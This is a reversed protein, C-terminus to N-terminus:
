FRINCPAGYDAYDQAKTLAGTKGDRAFVVINGSDQNACLLWNQDPSLIFGRPTKGCSDTWVPDSLLGNEDVRYCVISDHGRNSAYLFRGDYSLHVDAAITTGFYGEPLMSIEQMTKLAGSKEVAFVTVCSGMENVLYARRTATCFTLHRPGVGPTVATEGLKRVGKESVQYYFVRDCGLDCVYLVDERFPSWVTSHAHPGEQRAANPGSGKHVHTRGVPTLMGDAALAFVRFSGSPYNCAAVYRNSPSVAVYCPGEGGTSVDCLTEFGGPTVRYARVFGRRAEDQMVSFFFQKKMDFNVYSPNLMTPIMTVPSLVGTESDFASVRVCEQGTRGFCGFYVPYRM